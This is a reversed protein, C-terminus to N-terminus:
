ADGFLSILFQGKATHELVLSSISTNQWYQFSSRCIEVEHINMKITVFIEPNKKWVLLEPSDSVSATTM